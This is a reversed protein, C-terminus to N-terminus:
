TWSKAEHWDVHQGPGRKGSDTGRVFYIQLAHAPLNRQQLFDQQCMCQGVCASAMWVERIQPVQTPLLICRTVQHFSMRAETLRGDLFTFRQPQLPQCGVLRLEQHPVLPPRPQQEEALHLLTTMVFKITFKTRSLVTMVDGSVMSTLTCASAHM